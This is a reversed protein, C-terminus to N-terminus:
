DWDENDAESQAQRALAQKQVDTFTDWMEQVEESIYNRWNHVKDEEDWEPSQWDSPTDAINFM